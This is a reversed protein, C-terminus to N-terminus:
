HTFNDVEVAKFVSLLQQAVVILIICGLTDLLFDSNAPELHCLLLSSCTFYLLKACVDVREHTVQLDQSTLLLSVDPQVHTVEKDVSWVELVALGKVRVWTTM